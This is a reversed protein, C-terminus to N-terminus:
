SSVVSMKKRDYDFNPQFCKKRLMAPQFPRKITAVKSIADM